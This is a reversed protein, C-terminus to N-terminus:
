RGLLLEVIKLATEEPTQHDNEVVQMNYGANRLFVGAREYLLIEAQPSHEREFRTHTSRQSLRAELTEARATFVISVDPSRFTSNAEWTEEFSVGDLARFVLSSCVYRDCVVWEGRALAPEIDLALHQKRDEVIFRALEVGHHLEENNRQFRPTPEKTQFVSEGRERLREIILGAITTKGVGNPGDLVVFRGAINNKSMM